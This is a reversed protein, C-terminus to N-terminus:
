PLPTEGLLISAVLGQCNLILLATMVGTYSNVSTECEQQLQLAVA